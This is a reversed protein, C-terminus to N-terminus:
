MQELVTISSPCHTIYNYIPNNHSGIDLINKAQYKSLINATFHHRDTAENLYPYLDNGKYRRNAEIKTYRRIELVEPKYICNNQFQLLGPNCTDCKPPIFSSNSCM